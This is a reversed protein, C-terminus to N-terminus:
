QAGGFFRDRIEAIVKRRDALETLVKPDTPLSFVFDELAPMTLTASSEKNSAMARLGGELQQAVAFLDVVFEPKPMLVCAHHNCCFEGAEVVRVTGSSGDMAVILAPGTQRTVGFGKKTKSTKSIKFRPLAEGGGYVPMGHTDQQAYIIAETLASDGKQLTFGDRVKVLSGQGKSVALPTALVDRIIDSLPLLPAGTVKDRRTIALVLECKKRIDLLSAPLFTPRLCQDPLLSIGRGQESSLRRAQAHLAKISFVGYKKGLATGFEDNGAKPSKKTLLADLLKSGHLLGTKEHVWGQLDNHLWEGTKARRSTEYRKDSNAFGDNDVIFMSIEESGIETIAAKWTLATLESARKQFVVIATRQKTYPAFAHPPMAIVDTVRACRLLALRADASRPNELVGTPLVVLGWGSGKKLLALIRTLFAEELRQGYPPNALMLDFGNSPQKELAGVALSDVGGTISSFGDGAFYMNVRARSANSQSLDYGFFAKKAFDTLDAESPNFKKKAYRLTETLFGGTGCAIDAITKDALAGAFSNIGAREFLLPVVASIIHRGTFFEGLAKKTADDGIAQYVEGFVDFDAGHLPPLTDLAQYMTLFLGQGGEINKLCDGFSFAIEANAGATKESFEFIDGYRLKLAKTSLVRGLLTTFREKLANDNDSAGSALGPQEAWPGWDPLFECLMRLTLLAVTFDIPRRGSSLSPIGRYINKLAPLVNRLDGATAHGRVALFNGNSSFGNSAYKPIPFSDIVETGEARVPQWHQEFNFYALRLYKGNFGAAVRPLGPHSPKAKHLGEIYFKAEDLATAVPVAPEKNEWVCFPLTHSAEAYVLTDPAGPGKAAMTKSPWHKDIDKIGAKRHKVTFGLKALFAHAYVEVDPENVASKTASKDFLHLQKTM